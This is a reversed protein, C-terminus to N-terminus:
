PFLIDSYIGTNQYSIDDVYDTTLLRGEYQVYTAAEGTKTENLKNIHCFLNLKLQDTDAGSFTGRGKVVLCSQAKVSQKLPFAITLIMLFQSKLM